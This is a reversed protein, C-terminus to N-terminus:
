VAGLLIPGTLGVVGLVLLVGLYYLWSPARWGDLQPGLSATAAWILALYIVIMWLTGVAARVLSLDGFIDVAVAAVYLLALLALGSRVRISWDGHAVALAGFVITPVLAAGAGFALLILSLTGLVRIPTL